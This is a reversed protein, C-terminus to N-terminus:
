DEYIEAPGFFQPYHPRLFSRVEFCMACKQAYGERRRYGKEEALKLLSFPGEPGETALIGAIPHRLIYDKTMVESIDADRINGLIVGCNTQLNGYPDGHVEMMTDPDFDIACNETGWQAGWIRDRVLQPIPREDLYQSLAFFARGVMRPPVSRVREGLRGEDRAIGELEDPNKLVASGSGVINDAGFIDTAIRIARRVREAPVFEQHYPDASFYMGLMGIDRLEGFRREVMEDSSCWSCNTQVMHPPFGRKSSERAASLLVDYFMFPEGGSLHVIRNLKSFEVTCTVADSVSMVANPNGPKCAFLCHRCAITCRYSLMVGALYPKELLKKLTTPDSMNKNGAAL